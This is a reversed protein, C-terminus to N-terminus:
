FTREYEDLSIPSEFTPISSLMEACQRSSAFCVSKTLVFILKLNRM